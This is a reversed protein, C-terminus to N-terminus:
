QNYDMVYYYFSPNPQPWGADQKNYFANVQIGNNRVEAVVIFSRTKQPLSFDNVNYTIGYFSGVPVWFGGKVMYFLVIPPSALTKSFPIFYSCWGIFGATSWPLGFGGQTFVSLSSFDSSFQLQAKPATVVDWGPKSLKLGETDLSVRRVM